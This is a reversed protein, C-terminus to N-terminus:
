YLSYTPDLALKLFYAHLYHFVAQPLLSMDRAVQFLSPLVLLSLFLISPSFDTLLLLHIPILFALYLSIPFTRLSFLRTLLALGVRLLIMADSKHEPSYSFLVLLLALLSNPKSTHHFSLAHLVMFM